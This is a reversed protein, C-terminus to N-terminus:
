NSVSKVQRELSPFVTTTLVPWAAREDDPWTEDRADKKQWESIASRRAEVGDSAGLAPSASRRTVVRRV